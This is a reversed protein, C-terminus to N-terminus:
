LDFLPHFFILRSGRSIRSCSLGFFRKGRERIERPERNFIGARRLSVAKLQIEHDTM